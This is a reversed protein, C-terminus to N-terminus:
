LSAAAMPRSRSPDAAARARVEVHQDDVVARGVVRRPGRAGGACADHPHREVEADAARHLRAVLVRELVAVVDGDLDVAVALVVRAVDVLQERVQARVRSSSM